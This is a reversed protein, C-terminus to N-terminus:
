AVLSEDFNEKKMRFHLILIDELRPPYECKFREISTDEDLLSRPILYLETGDHDKRLRATQEHKFILHDETKKLTIFSKKLDAASSDVMLKSNQLLILQDTYDNLESLINTTIVVTGGQETYEKLKDLFYRQGDIDIVATIEDLLMIKPNAALAMMLLFQMKQGRSLDSFQKKISFKRDKLIQNFVKNSWNPFVQRYIKVMELLNVTFTMQYNEHIFFIEPRAAFEFAFPNEDLLLVEGKEVAEVGAIVRLTTSKGAGNCGILTTFSGETVNFSVDEIVTNKEYSKFINKLQIIKSM